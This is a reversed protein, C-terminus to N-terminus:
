PLRQLVPLGGASQSRRHRLNGVVLQGSLELTKRTEYGFHQDFQEHLRAVAAGAAWRDSWRVTPTVRTRGIHNCVIVLSRVKESADVVTGAPRASLVLM